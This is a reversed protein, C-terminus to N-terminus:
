LIVLYKYKLFLHQEKSSQEDFIKSIMSFHIVTEVFIKFLVITKLM